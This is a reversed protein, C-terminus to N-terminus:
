NGFPGFTSPGQTNIESNYQFKSYIPFIIM